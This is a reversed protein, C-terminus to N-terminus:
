RVPERICSRPGLGCEEDMLYGGWDEAWPDGHVQM